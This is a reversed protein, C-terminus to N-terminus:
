EKMNWREELDGLIFLIDYIDTDGKKMDCSFFAAIRRTTTSFGEGEGETEILLCQEPEEDAQSIDSVRIGTGSLMASMYSANRYSRAYQIQVNKNEDRFVSQYFLGQFQRIFERASFFKDGQVEKYRLYSIVEFDRDQKTNM